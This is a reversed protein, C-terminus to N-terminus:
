ATATEVALGLAVAGPLPASLLPGQGLDCGLRIFAQLQESSAISTVGVQIGFSHALRVLADIMANQHSAAPTAEIQRADLKIMDVPLRVLHNLPALLSGFNDIAIRIRNAALRELVAVAATARENLIREPVEVVLRRPDIGAMAVAETLQAVLEPHFFQRATLNISVTLSHGERHELGTRLQACAAAMGERGLAVSLGTVEAIEMLDSATDVGGGPRQWSLVAELQEINGSSLSYVPQYRFDFERRELAQRLEQEREQQRNISLELGKDFIEYQGPGSQRARLMAYDADRLLMDPLTHAATAMAAGLSATVSVAHGFVDFSQEMADVIRHAVVELDATSQLNEVLLAFEDGSLRAASDQPRLTTRLREAVGMLLTDGAAHGLADNIQKFRDLNLFLVGCSLDPRRQRRSLAQGLRDIFLARNPLGTLVDHMADHQLRGETQKREAIDRFTFVYGVREGQVRLPACAMSVDLLEGSRTARVTEVTVRGQLDVAKELNALENWRTEPVILQRLSQGSIEEATFGFIRAFAPNSYLVHEDHEIAVAEPLSALVDEMMRSRPARERGVPHAVVVAERGEAGLISYTGEVPILRGDAAPMTAHFPSGKGVSTLQTQPEATGPYLGWLVDEVPRATWPADGLGLIRRAAANAFVIQGTCELFVLVPLADLIERQAGSDANQPLNLGPKEKGAAARARGDDQPSSGISAESVPTAMPLIRHPHESAIFGRFRDVVPVM